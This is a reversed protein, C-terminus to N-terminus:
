SINSSGDWLFLCFIWLHQDEKHYPRKVVIELATEKELQETGKHTSNFAYLYCCEVWLSKTLKWHVEIPSDSMVIKFGLLTPTQFQCLCQPQPKLTHLWPWSNMKFSHFLPPQQFLSLLSWDVQVTIQLYSALFTKWRRTWLGLYDYRYLWLFNQFLFVFISTDM